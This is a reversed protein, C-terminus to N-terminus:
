LGDVIEKIEDVKEKIDNLKDVVDDHFMRFFENRGYIGQRGSGLCLLHPEGNIEGTGECNECLNTLEEPM